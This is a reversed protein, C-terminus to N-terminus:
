LMLLTVIVVAFFVTVTLPSVLTTVTAVGPGCPGDKAVDLVGKFSEL